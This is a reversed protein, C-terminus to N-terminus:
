FLAGADKVTSTAMQTKGRVFASCLLGTAVSVNLSDVIKSGSLNPISVKFDAARTLQRSLGEGESGLVLVCPDNLLPDTKEVSRMDLDQGGRDSKPAVAAFIKWGNENSERVFDVPSDVSFITLAEAAGASAKLVVSTIPSTGRKTVAVATVGMFSATRLIAGLNGPDLVQDLLLVFPKYRGPETIMFDDTGNVNAEETSQYGVLVKFGPRSEGSSVEGLARIPMQPLPSAELVFGNHPRSESMKNLMSLGSEDLHEVKVGRRWALETIYADKDRGRRNGGQYVYLKYLKRRTSQLAAEVTSTGYLFQSAATTYPISTPPEYAKRKKEKAEGEVEVEGEGGHHRGDNGAGEFSTRETRYAPRPGEERVAPRRFSDRDNREQNMQAFRGGSHERHAGGRDSRDFKRAELPREGDHRDRGFGYEHHSFGRDRPSGDFRDRTERTDGDIGRPGFTDLRDSRAVRRKAEHASEWPRKQGKRDVPVKRKEVLEEVEALAMQRAFDDHRLHDGQSGEDEERLEELLKGTRFRKLLSGQGLPDRPDSLRAARSKRSPGAHETIDKKGKRIKYTIPNRRALARERRREEPSLYPEEELPQRIEKQLRAGQPRARESRRLGAHVGSLRSADRTFPLSVSVPRPLFTPRLSPNRGLLPLNTALRMENYKFGSRFPFILEKSQHITNHNECCKPRTYLSLSSNYPPNTVKKQTAPIIAIAIRIGAPPGCCGM